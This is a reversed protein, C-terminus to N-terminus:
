ITYIEAAAAGNVNGTVGYLRFLPARVPPNIQHLAGGALYTIALPTDSEDNIPEWTTGSDPSYQLQFTVNDSGTPLYIAAILGGGVNAGAAPARASDLITFPIIAM